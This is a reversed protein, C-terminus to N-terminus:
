TTKVPEVHKFRLYLLVKGVVVPNPKASRETRRLSLSPRLVLASTNLTEITSRLETILDDSLPTLEIAQRIQKAIAQLQRPNEIDLRLSSGPLDSFLPEAWNIAELFQWFAKASIVFGPAVPYGKQLLRGLYYAKHGVASLHEPQIQDLRHLIM